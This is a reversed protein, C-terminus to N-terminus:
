VRDCAAIYDLGLIRLADAAPALARIVPVSPDPAALGDPNFWAARLGAARAGLMDTSWSDGFVVADRGDVGARRLAEEFIEPRPKSVGVEESTVLADVYPSLGCRALKRTQEAVLNNTVIVLRVGMRRVAAALDLAGAVPRWVQEYVQRYRASTAAARDPAFVGDAEALLRGFRELRADEISRLGTLVEVHLAELVVRHRADLEHLSWRRLAPEASQLDALAARTAGRHDFLTDDLDCLVARARRATTV